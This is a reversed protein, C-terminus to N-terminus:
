MGELFINISEIFNKNLMALMHLGNFYDDNHVGINQREKKNTILDKMGIKQNITLDNYTM